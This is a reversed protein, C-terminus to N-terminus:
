PSARKFFEKKCHLDPLPNKMEEQSCLMELVVKGLALNSGIM